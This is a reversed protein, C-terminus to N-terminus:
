IKAHEDGILKLMALNAYDVFKRRKINWNKKYRPICFPASKTRSRLMACLVACHYNRAIEQIKLFREQSNIIKDIDKVNNPNIGCGEFTADMLRKTAGINLDADIIRDPLLTEDATLMARIQEHYGEGFFQNYM